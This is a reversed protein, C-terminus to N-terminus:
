MLRGVRFYSTPSIATLAPAQSGEWPEVWRSDQGEGGEPMRAEESRSPAAGYLPLSSPPNRRQSLLLPRMPLPPLVPPSVDRRRCPEEVPREVDRWRDVRAMDEGMGEGSEVEVAEREDGSATCSPSPGVGLDSVLSRLM